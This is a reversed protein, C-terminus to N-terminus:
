IGIGISLSLRTNLATQTESAGITFFSNGNTWNDVQTDTQDKSLARNDSLRVEAVNGTLFEAGARSGVVLNPSATADFATFTSSAVTGTTKNVRGTIGTAAVAVMAVYQFSGPTSVITPVTGGDLQDVDTVAFMELTEDTHEVRILMAAAGSLANGVFVQEDAGGATNKKGYCELTGATWGAMNPAGLTITQAGSLTWSDGINASPQTGGVVIANLSLTALNGSADRFRNPTAGYHEQTHFVCAYDSWLDSRNQQDAAAPNGYYCYFETDNTGHVDGKFYARRFNYGLAPFATIAGAWDDYDQYSTPSIFVVRGRKGIPCNKAVVPRAHHCASGSTVDYSKAWTGSARTWNQIEYISGEQKSAWMRNDDDPDLAAAGPYYNNGSQKIGATGEDMVKVTTWAGNSLSGYYLDHNNIAPYVYFLCHPNGDNDYAIDGLWVPDSDATSDYVTTMESVAFPPDGIDVGASNFWDTGDFYCHLIKLNDASEGPDNSSLLFDIRSGNSTSVVYPSNGWGNSETDHIFANGTTTGDDATIRAIGWRRTDADVRNSYVIYLNGNIEHPQQYGYTSNGAPDLAVEAAFASSDEASSSVRMRMTTLLDDAYFALIKSDSSRVLLAPPIHDDGPTGFTNITTSTVTGDAYNFEHVQQAGATSIAGVYLKEHTGSHYVAVPRSFWSWGGNRTIYQKEAIIEHPLQTEGDSSTFLIDWGDGRAHARIHSDASPDFFIPLGTIAGSGAVSAGPVTIKKRYRWAPDFWAM